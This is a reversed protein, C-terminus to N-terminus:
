PTFEIVETVCTGSVGVNSCLTITARMDHGTPNYAFAATSVTVTDDPGLTDETSSSVCGDTATFKDASMSVVTDTDLDRVALSISRFTLGGTNTLKIDFWWGVCTEIGNYSAEFSPVPTPTPPPTYVPLVSFNGTVTAFEGWIWCFADSRNPNRIYWYTSSSDRGVVEAVQGVLLAGVRDYVRGPGVRCNTAVSVSIQPILPTTTFLPTPSLTATPSLTPLPTLTPTPSDVVDIPVVGQATQTVAAMMTQMIATGIANIDQTPAPAPLVCALSLILLVTVSLLIPNSKRM